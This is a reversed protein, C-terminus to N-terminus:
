FPSSIQVPKHADTHYQLWCFSLYCESRQRYRQPATESGCETDVPHSRRWGAPTNKRVHGGPLGTAPSGEFRPASQWGEQRGSLEPPPLLFCVPATTCMSPKGTYVSPLCSDQHNFFPHYWHSAVVSFVHLTPSENKGSSSNEFWNDTRKSKPM